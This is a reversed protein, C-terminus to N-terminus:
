INARRKIKLGGSLIGKNKIGSKISDDMIDWLKLINDKVNKQSYTM